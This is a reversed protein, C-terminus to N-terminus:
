RKAEMKELHLDNFFKKNDEWIVIGTNDIMCLKGFMNWYYCLVYMSGNLSVKMRQEDRDFELDEWKLYHKPEQAKAEEIEGEIIYRPYDVTEDRIVSIGMLQEQHFSRDFPITYGADIKAIMPTSLKIGKIIPNRLTISERPKLMQKAKRVSEIFDEVERNM